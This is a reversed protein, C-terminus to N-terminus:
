GSRNSDSKEFGSAPRDVGYPLSKFYEDVGAIVGPSGLDDYELDYSCLSAYNAHNISLDTTLRYNRGMLKRRRMVDAPNLHRLASEVELSLPESSEKSPVRIGPYNGIDSFGGDSM